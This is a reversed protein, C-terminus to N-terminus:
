QQIVRLNLGLISHLQHHEFTLADDNIRVLNIFSIESITAGSIATNLVLATNSGDEVASVISRYQVGTNTTIMLRKYPELTLQDVLKNGAVKLATGAFEVTVLDPRFSPMLFAKWSGRVTNAFERWYDLAGRDIKFDHARTVVPTAWRRVIEPPLNPAIDIPVFGPYFGEPIAEDALPRQTLIPFGDYSSVLGSAASPRVVPRAAADTFSLGTTGHVTLMSLAAGDAFRMLRTPMAYARNRGAFPFGSDIEFNDTDVATVVRLASAETGLEFFAVYDDVRIDTADMDCYVTTANFNTEEIMVACAHNAVRIDESTQRLLQERFHRYDVHNEIIYNHQLVVRPHKRVSMRQETGDRATSVRTEYNWIETVPTEPLREIYYHESTVIDGIHWDIDLTQIVNMIRYSISFSTNLAIKYSSDLDVRWEGDVVFSSVLDVSLKIKYDASLNKYFAIAYDSTLSKGFTEFAYDIELDIDIPDHIVKFDTTLDRFIAAKIQWNSSVDKYFGPIDSLSIVNYSPTAPWSLPGFTKAITWTSNDDSYEIYGTVPREDTEYSGMGLKVSKVPQAAAFQYALWAGGAAISTNQSEWATGINDDFGDSPPHGGWNGSAYATGGTCLDTGTGDNSTFMEAEAIVVRNPEGNTSTPRIRWYVHAGIPTVPPQDNIIYSATLDVALKIVYDSTIDAQFVGDIAYSSVLVKDFTHFTRYDSELDIGIQIKYSFTLDKLIRGVSEGIVFYASVKTVYIPLSLPVHISAKQIFLPQEVIAYLSSKSVETM